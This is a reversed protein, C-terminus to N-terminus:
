TTKLKQNWSLGLVKMVQQQVLRTGLGEVGGSKPQKCYAAISPFERPRESESRLHCICLPLFIPLNHHVHLCLTSPCGADNPQTQSAQLRTRLPLCLLLCLGHTRQRDHVRTIVQRGQNGIRWARVPILWYLDRGTRIKGSALFEYDTALYNPFWPEQALRILLQHGITQSTVSSGGDM